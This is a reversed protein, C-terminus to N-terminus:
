DIQEVGLRADGCLALRDLRCHSLSLRTRTSIAAQRTAAYLRQLPSPQCRQSSDGSVGVQLLLGTRAMGIVGSSEM